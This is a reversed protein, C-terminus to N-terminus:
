TLATLGLRQNSKRIHKNMKSICLRGATLLLKIQRLEEHESKIHYRIMGIILLGETLGLFM